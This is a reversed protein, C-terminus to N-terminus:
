SATWTKSFIADSTSDVIAALHGRAEEAHKIRRHEGAGNV